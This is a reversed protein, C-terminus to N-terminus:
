VQESILVNADSKKRLPQDGLQQGVELVVGLRTRSASDKDPRLARRRPPPVPRLAPSGRPGLGADVLRHGEVVEACPCGGPLRTPALVRSSIFRIPWLLM